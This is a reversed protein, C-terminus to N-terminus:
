ARYCLDIGILSWQHNPRPFSCVPKAVEETSELATYEMPSAAHEHTDLSEETESRTIMAIEDSGSLVEDDRVNDEM